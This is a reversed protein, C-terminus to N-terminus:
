GEKPTNGGYNEARNIGQTISKLLATDSTSALMKWGATSMAEALAPIKALDTVSLTSMEGDGNANNIVFYSDAIARGLQLGNAEPNDLLFNGLAKYDWGSGPEVEESAILYKAFPQITQATEVTAMLCADFGIFEFCNEHGELASAIDKLLLSDNNFLEDFCVGNISGSGHNWLVLGYRKADFTELGWQVFAGLTDSAGMSKLEGDWLPHIKGNSIEWRALRNSPISVGIEESWKATGGTQIVFRVNERTGSDLMQMLNDTAANNESELDTGCLYVFVVWDQVDQAFAPVQGVIIMAIVILFSLLKKM